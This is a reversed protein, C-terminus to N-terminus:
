SKIQITCANLNEIDDVDIQPLNFCKVLGSNGLSEGKIMILFHGRVCLKKFNKIGGMERRFGSM